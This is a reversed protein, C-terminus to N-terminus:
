VELQLLRWGANPTLNNFTATGALLVERQTAPCQFTRLTRIGYTDDDGFGDLAEAVISQRSGDFSWLDAGPTGLELTLGGIGGVLEALAFSIDFTGMYARGNFQAACWSFVNLANGFGM